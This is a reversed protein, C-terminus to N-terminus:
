FKKKGNTGGGKYQRLIHTAYQVLRKKDKEKLGDYLYFGTSGDFDRMLYYYETREMEEQTAKKMMEVLQKSVSDFDKDPIVNESMEYYIISHIIIFRQLWSIKLPTSWYVCPMRDFSIRM